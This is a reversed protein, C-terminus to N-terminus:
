PSVAFIFPPPLHLFLFAAGFLLPKKYTFSPCIPYALSIMVALSFFITRPCLKATLESWVLWITLTNAKPNPTLLQAYTQDTDSIKSPKRNLSMKSSLNPKIM